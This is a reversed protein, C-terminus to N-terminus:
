WFGGVRCGLGAGPLRNERAGTSMNSVRHWIGEAKGGGMRRSVKQESKRVTRLLGRHQKLM